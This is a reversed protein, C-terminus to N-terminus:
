HVQQTGPREIRVTGSDGDLYLLDGTRILRTALKTNVIAPIGYERSVISSHSLMSGVDAVVGAALVFLPTWSADTYPAVLIEGQRFEETQRSLDTIVRARAVVAGPSAGLGRILDREKEDSVSSSDRRPVHGGIIAMPPEEARQSALHRRRNREILTQAFAEHAPKRGAVYDRFENFDIYPLDDISVSGEASLRRLVEVIISRYFWTETIFTPRTAERREATKAYASIVFRFALRAKLPLGALLRRTDEEREKDIKELRPELRVDSTLYMRIVQLLYSPDDHWRPISLDFEQHGRSGFDRLFAAFEGNRFERGEDDKQLADVLRKLPTDLFLQKLSPSREIGEALGCVGRTVEITRLNNMSAKFRNQLGAGEQGLWKECLESLTDYLAFSQLFFPVYAVCSVLFNRDIRELEADLEALSMHALDLELFRATEQERLAEMRRVTRDATLMNRVQAGLWYLSSKVYRLGSVPKGYPNVYRSLDLDDTAYRRTFKMPDRTPPCQTLIRASASINLYVYGQIYGMFLRSDCLELLGMTKVAPGHVQHQYFRCFSLGLPTMLGTVIEGTDMRSFMANERRHEDPEDPDAYLKGGAKAADVTIPRAQLLWIKGDKIAWEIDMETGYRRRVADAQVALEVAESASLTPEHVRDEPVPRLAVEGSEGRVSMVPKERVTSEEVAMEAADVVFTDATVKGSVLGEGLGWCSEIVIHRREGTIPDATFLVGAADPDIMEQIVVAIGAPRAPDPHRSDMYGQYARARDAWLSGWCRRVSDLVAPEGEVHLFTDYQGAFSQTSGDENLASSRVAVRTGGIQSYAGVIAQRLPQPIESQEIRHRVMSPSLGDGNGDIRDLFSVYADVTVCHAKPVSFGAGILTNLSDAKGGLRMVDLQPDGSLEVVYPECNM